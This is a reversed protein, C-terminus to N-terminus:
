VGGDTDGDPHATTRRHLAQRGRAIELARGGTPDPKANRALETLAQSYRGLAPYQSEATPSDVRASGRVDRLASYVREKTIEFERMITASEGEMEDAIAMLLAEGGVDGDKRRGAEGDGAELM